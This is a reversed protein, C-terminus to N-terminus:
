KMGAKTSSKINKNFMIVFVRGFERNMNGFKKLAGKTVGQDDLHELDFVQDKVSAPIDIKFASKTKKISLAGVVNSPWGQGILYNSLQKNMQEVLDSESKTFTATLFQLM